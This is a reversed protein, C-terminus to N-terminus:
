DEHGIAFYFGDPGWKLLERGQEWIALTIKTRARPGPSDLQWNLVIPSRRRKSLQTCVEMGAVTLLEHSMPNFNFAKFLFEHEPKAM